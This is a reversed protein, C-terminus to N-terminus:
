ASPAVIKTIKVEAFRQRHGNLKRVRKKPKYKFVLIKPAKGQRLVTGTVKAGAVIPAGLAVTPGDAALVVRDFTVESGVASEVLDCRIVDGEAVRIQKGGTEIIAYM